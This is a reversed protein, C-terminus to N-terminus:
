VHQGTSLRVEKMNASLNRVDFNEMKQWVNDESSVWSCQKFAFNARHQKCCLRQGITNLSVTITIANSRPRRVQVTHFDRMPWLFYDNIRRGLFEHYILSKIQQAPLEQGRRRPLKRKDYVLSKPTPPSCLGAFAPTCLALLVRAACVDGM